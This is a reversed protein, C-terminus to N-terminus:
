AAQEKEDHQGTRSSGLPAHQSQPSYTSPATTNTIRGIAAQRPAATKMAAIYVIRSIHHDPERFFEFASPHLLFNFRDLHQDCELTRATEGRMDTAKPYGM